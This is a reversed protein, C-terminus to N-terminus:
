GFLQCFANAHCLKNYNYDLFSSDEELHQINIIADALDNESQPNFFVCNPNDQLQERHVQLESVIIKKNFVKADEIVTSWGEFLSPQIISIAGKMIALQEKRDIFGLFLINDELGADKVMKKLSSSYDPHRYDVEKGSFLILIDRQIEVLKKIALIVLKQNKHIWFQNPSFHYPRNISYKNSLATIDINSFDPHTVSFPIVHIKHKFLPYLEMFDRKADISSLVMKKARYVQAIQRQKIEILEDVNFFEPLHLEQFDPIWYIKKEENILSFYDGIPNPFLLDFSDTLKLNILKKKFLRLSVANIMKIWLPSISKDKVFFLYPYSTEKQIWTFEFRRPSIISIIPKVNNPLVNLANILNVIYYTGGIWNEDYKFILGLHKREGM